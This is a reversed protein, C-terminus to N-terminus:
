WMHANICHLSVAWLLHYTLMQQLKAGSLVTICEAWCWLADFHTDSNKATCEMKLTLILQICCSCKLQPSWCFHMTCQETSNIARSSCLTLIIALSGSQDRCSVKDSQKYLANPGQKEREVDAGGIYLCCCHLCCCCLCRCHLCSCHICRCCLCCCDVKDSHKYLANAWQVIHWAWYFIPFLFIEVVAGMSCM